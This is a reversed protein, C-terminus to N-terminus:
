YLKFGTLRRHFGPQRVSPGCRPPFHRLCTSASRMPPLNIVLEYNTPQQVPPDAPAGRMADVM